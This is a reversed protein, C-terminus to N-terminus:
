APVADELGWYCVFYADGDASLSASGLYVDDDVRRVEDRVRRMLRPNAPVDYDLLLVEDGDFVSDAKRQDFEFRRLAFPGLELRNVGSSVRFDKGRWPNFPLNALRRMPRLALPGRGALVAGDMRGLIEGVDPTEGSRFLDD